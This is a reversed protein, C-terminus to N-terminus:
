INTLFLPFHANHMMSMYLISTGAHTHAHTRTRTNTHTRTHTRTHTHKHTHKHVRKCMYAKACVCSPHGSTNKQVSFSTRQLTFRRCAITENFSITEYVDIFAFAGVYINHHETVSRM